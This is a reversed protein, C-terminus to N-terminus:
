SAVATSASMTSRRSAGPGNGWTRIVIISDDCINYTFWDGVKPIDELREAMQWVKPWLRDKEAELYEKSLFAEVPYTLANELDEVSINEAAIKSLENM